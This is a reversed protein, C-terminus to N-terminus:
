GLIDIKMKEYDEKTIEGKAYRKNLIEIASDDGKTGDHKSGSSGMCCGGRRLFMFAICVILFLFMLPFIWMGGIPWWMTHEPGM